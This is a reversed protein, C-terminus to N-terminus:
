LFSHGLSFFSLFDSLFFTNIAVQSSESESSSIESFSCAARAKIAVVLRAESSICVGSASDAESSCFSIDKVAGRLCWDHYRSLPQERCMVPFFSINWLRSSLGPPTTPKPPFWFPFIMPQPVMQLPLLEEM